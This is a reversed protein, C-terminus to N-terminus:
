LAAGVPSRPERRRRRPAAVESLVLLAEAILRLAKRQDGSM